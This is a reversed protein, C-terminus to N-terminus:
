TLNIDVFEIKPEPQGGGWSSGFGPQWHWVALPNWFCHVFALVRLEREVFITACVFGARSFHHYARIRSSLFLPVCLSPEVFIAIRVIGTTNKELRFRTYRYKRLGYDHTGVSKDPFTIARM